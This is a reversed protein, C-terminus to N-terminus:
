PTVTTGSAAMHQATRYGIYARHLIPAVGATVVEDEDVTFGDARFGVVLNEADLNMPVRYNRIVDTDVDIFRDLSSGATDTLTITITGHGQAAVLIERTQMRLHQSVWLPHSTWKWAYALDDYEYLHFFEDDDAFTRECGIAQAQYTTSSWFMIPGTLSTDTGDADTMDDSEIRWWGKTEFDMVWGGPALLLEGWRDCAGLHGNRDVDAIQVTFEDGDLQPSIPTAGEGGNWLFLGANGASYIWGLPTNTGAVTPSGDPCRLNPLRIVTVDDLDGQLVYGGGIRKIVVLQNASMSSMDGIAQDIEPVYYQAETLSTINTNVDTYWFNEDTSLVINTGMGYITFEGVVIRGQHAVARQYIATDDMLDITGTAFPSGPDPTVQNITLTQQPNSWIAVMVPNGPDTVSAPNMRTKLLYGYKYTTAEAAGADTASYIVETYPAAKFIAERLWNAENDFLGGGADESWSVILHVDIRHAPDHSAADVFGLTGLANVLYDTDAPGPPTTLGFSTKRRPLPALGGTPLARCGWTTDPQAMAPNTATVQVGGALLNNSFIGPSFDTLEIWKLDGDDAPM